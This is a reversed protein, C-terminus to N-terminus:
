SSDGGGMFMKRTLQILFLVFLLSFLRRCNKALSEWPDDSIDIVIEEEIGLSKVKIPVTIVPAKPEAVMTDIVMAVDWPISTPFREKAKEATQQSRDQLFQMVTQTELLLSIDQLKSLIKEQYANNEKLLEIMDDLKNNSDQFLKNWFQTLANDGAYSQVMEEPFKEFLDVLSALSDDSSRVFGRIKKVVRLIKELLGTTKETNDDVSDGVDEVASVIKDTEQQILEMIEDSNYDKDKLKKDITNKLDDSVKEWDTDYINKINVTQSNDVSKDYNYYNKNNVIQVSDDGNIYQQAFYKSKWVLIPSGALTQTLYDLCYPQGIKVWQPCEVPPFLGGGGCFLIYPEKLSFNTAYIKSNSGDFYFINTNGLLMMSAYGSGPSATSPACISGNSNMIYSRIAEKESDYNATNSALAMKTTVPQLIYYDKYDTIYKYFFDMTKDDVTITGDANDRIVIFNGVGDVADPNQYEIITGDSLEYRLGAFTNNISNKFSEALGQGTAWNKLTEGAIEYSGAFCDGFWGFVTKTDNWFDGSTYYEITNKEAAYAPLPAPLLFQESVLSLVLLLATLHKKAILEALSFYKQWELFGVEM